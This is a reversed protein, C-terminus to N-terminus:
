NEFRFFSSYHFFRNDDKTYFSSPKIANGDIARVYVSSHMRVCLLYDNGSKSEVIAIVHFRIKKRAEM